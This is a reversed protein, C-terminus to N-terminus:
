RTTTLARVGRSSIYAREARLLPPVKASRPPIVRVRQEPALCEACVSSHAEGRVAREDDDRQEYGRVTGREPLPHGARALKDDSRWARVRMDNDPMRIVLGLDDLLPVARLLLGRVLTAEFVAGVEVRALRRRFYHIAGGAGVWAQSLRGDGPDPRQGMLTWREIQVGALRARPRAGCKLCADVHDKREPPPTVEGLEFMLEDLKAKFRRRTTSRTLGVREAVEEETYGSSRLQFIMRDRKETCVRAVAQQVDHWRVVTLLQEEANSGGDGSAWTSPPSTDAALASPESDPGDYPLGKLWIVEGREYPKFRPRVM